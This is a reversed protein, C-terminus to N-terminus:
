ESAEMLLDLAAEFAALHPALRDELRRQYALALPLLEAMLRRGVLTLSLAVLRKDGQM